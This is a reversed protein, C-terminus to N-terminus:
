DTEKKEFAIRLMGDRQEAAMDIGQEMLYKLIEDKRKEAAKM